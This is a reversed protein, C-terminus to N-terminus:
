KLLYRQRANVIAQKQTAIAMSDDIRELMANQTNTEDYMQTSIQAIRDLTQSINDIGANIEADTEHVRALGATSDEDLQQESGKRSGALNASALGSSQLNVAGGKSRPIYGGFKEAQRSKEGAKIKREDNRQQVGSIASQAGLISKGETYRWKRRRVYCNVKPKSEGAGIRNLTAFDYAYTWGEADIGNLSYDIQWRSNIDQRDPDFIDNCSINTDTCLVLGARKWKATMMDYKEHQFVEKVKSIETQNKEAIENEAERLAKAKKGGLWNGAWRDFRSQLAQSQDLKTSVANLEGHIDSMQNGQRRLEELTQNGIEETEAAQRQIRFISQKTKEQIESADKLMALNAERQDGAM